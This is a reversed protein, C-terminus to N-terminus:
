WSKASKEFFDIMKFFNLEPFNRMVSNEWLKTTDYQGIIFDKRLLTYIASDIQM